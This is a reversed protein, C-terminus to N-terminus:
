IGRIRKILNKYNKVPGRKQSTYDISIQDDSIHNENFCLPYVFEPIGFYNIPGYKIAYIKLNGEEDKKILPFEQTYALYYKVLKNEDIKDIVEHYSKEFHFEISSRKDFLSYTGFYYGSKTKVIGHWLVSNLPTPSVLLKEYNINQESLATKFENNAIGKSVFTWLFYISSILLSLKIVKQRIINKRFLLIVTGILLISTYIPEIVHINNTSFLHSSFPSLLKTGYTTGWDLIGHTMIALFFATIWSLKSNSSKYIKHFLIGLFISMGTAFIISHSVSRHVSLFAVENFLPALMVDLDPLTGAIAGILLSKNGIEKDKILAFTTAGLLGQTLSDM